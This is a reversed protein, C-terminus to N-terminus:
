RQEASSLDREAAAVSTDLLARVQRITDELTSHVTLGPRALSLQVLVNNRRVYAPDAGVALPTPGAAMMGLEYLAIPQHSESAPFWFLVLSAGHLQRHEWRVQQAEADPNETPFSSRRPNLVAVDLDTFGLAAERQWNACQGIGGALFVSPLGDPAYEDPAEIYRM